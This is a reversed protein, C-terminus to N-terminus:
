ATLRRFRGRNHARFHDLGVQGCLGTSRPDAASHDAPGPDFRPRLPRGALAKPGSSPPPWFGKAIKSPSLGTKRGNELTARHHGFVITRIRYASYM